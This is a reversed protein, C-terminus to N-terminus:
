GKVSRKANILAAFGSVTHVKKDALDKPDIRIGFVGEIDAIFSLLEFSDLVSDIRYDYVNEVHTVDRDGHATLLQIIKDRIESDVHM